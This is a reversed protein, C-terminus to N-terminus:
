DVNSEVSQRTVRASDVTGVSRLFGALGDAFAANDDGTVAHGAGAVDVVQLHPILEAMAAAEQATVVDSRAGRVLMAPVTLARAAAVLRDRVPAFDPGHTAFAPDWHLYWRGDPRHRAQSEWRAADLPPRGTYGAVAAALEELSGFGAAATHLFDRVRDVGVTRSDIAIDVLVLGDPGPGPDATALLGALGAMSMGVLVTPGPVQACVAALDGAFAGPTYDADPPPDTDGHGRLDVALVGFSDAVLRRATRRWSSRSQGGGPVLVATVAGPPAPWHEGRIRVPGSDVSFAAGDAM